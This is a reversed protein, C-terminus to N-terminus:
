ARKQRKKKLKGGHSELDHLEREASELSSNIYELHGLVLDRDEKGREELDRETSVKSSKLRKITKKLDHIRGRDGIQQSGETNEMIELEALRALEKFEDELQSYKERQYRLESDLEDLQERSLKNIDSPIAQQYEHVFEQFKTIEKKKKRLEKQYKYSKKRGAPPHPEYQHEEEQPNELEEFVANALREREERTERKVREIEEPLDVDGIKEYQIDEEMIKEHAARNIEELLQGIIRDRASEDSGYRRTNVILQNAILRQTLEDIKDGLVIRDNPNQRSGEALRENLRHLQNKFEILNEKDQQIQSELQELSKEKINEMFEEEKNLDKISENLVSVDDALDHGKKIDEKTINGKSLFKVHDILDRNAKQLANQLVLREIEMISAGAYPRLQPIKKLDLKSIDVRGNVIDFNVFNIAASAPRKENALTILSKAVRDKIAGKLRLSDLYRSTKKVLKIDLTLGQRKKKGRIVLPKKMRKSAPKKGKVLKPADGATPESYNRSSM